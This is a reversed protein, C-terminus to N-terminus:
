RIPMVRWKKENNMQPPLDGIDWGPYTSEIFYYKKNNYEKYAGTGNINIGAM